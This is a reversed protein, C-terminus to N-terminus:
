WKFLQVNKSFVNQGIQVSLKTGIWTTAEEMGQLFHTTNPIDTRNIYSVICLVRWVSSFLIWFLIWFSLSYAFFIRLAVAVAYSFDTGVLAQVCEYERVHVHACEWVCVYKNWYKLTLLKETFVTELYKM